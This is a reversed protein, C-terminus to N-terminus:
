FIQQGSYDICMRKNPKGNDFVLPQTRRPANSTKIQYEHLLREAKAKIITLVKFSFKRTKVVTPKCNATPKFDNFLQSYSICATPMIASVPCESREGKFKFSVSKHQPVLNHGIIIDAM